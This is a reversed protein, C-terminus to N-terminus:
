KPIKVIFTTGKNVASEVSIQGNHLDVCQKVIALGLGTGPYNSANSARYFSNFIHPLDSIDIGIGKDSIRFSVSDSSLNLEFTITSNQPSYKIANGLLNNLIQNLLKPDLKIISADSSVKFEIRNANANVEYIAAIIEQCLKVVDTERPEYQLTGAQGEAILLTDQVIAAIRKVSSEIKQFHRQKKEATLNELYNQLIDFSSQIIALPTRIEHSTTAIFHSKADSLERERQLAKCIEEQAQKSDTIDEAVGVMRYINGNKDTIPFTRDRVWRISGDPRIIRYEENIDFANDGVAISTIRELDDPHVSKLFSHPEQYLSERTRCWLKEYYPSMYYYESVNSNCLWFVIDVHNAFQQFKEESERLAEEAAKRDTIDEAIGAMCEVNGNNDLILYGRGHIWRVTKDPLIIRYEEDFDQRNVLQHVSTNVRARDDPHIPELFAKPNNYLRANSHGWIKEYNPSVYLVKSFDASCIWFVQNTKEVVQGLPTQM